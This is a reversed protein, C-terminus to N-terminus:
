RISKKSLMNYFENTITELYDKRKLETIWKKPINNYGYILGALGGTIAGVTDTDDGLNVAKLVSTKYSDSTLICWIAAELTDIVYGSSKINEEKLKSIDNYILRNFKDKLDDLNGLMKNNDDDLIKKIMDQTRIYAKGIDNSKMYENILVSYIICSLVSYIHAHTMSSINNIVDFMPDGTYHLYLSIPLIRMLSGNGNSYEDNAGCKFSENNTEYKNLAAATANGIDFVVGNPTYKQFNYWEIFNNMIDEYDVFNNKILSDITALVMSSDDSWTGKPQNHTGYELMDKVSNRKLEERRIFEVPVGLADGVIFGILSGKIREKEDIRNNSKHFIKVM